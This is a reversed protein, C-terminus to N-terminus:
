AELTSLDPVSKRVDATLNECARLVPRNRGDFRNQLQRQIDLSQVGPDPSLPTEDGFTNEASGTDCSFTNETDISIDTLNGDAQSFNITDERM